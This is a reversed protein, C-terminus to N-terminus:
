QRLFGLLPCMRLFVTCANRSFFYMALEWLLVDWPVSENVLQQFSAHCRSYHISIVLSITYGRYETLTLM